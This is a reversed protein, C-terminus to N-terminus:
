RVMEVPGIWIKNPGSAGGAMATIDGISITKIRGAELKSAPDEPSNDDHDFDTLSVNVRFVKRGDPPYFMFNYRPGQGTASGKKEVEISLIFTGEHDAAVDFAIRKAGAISPGNVRRTLIAIKGDAAQISALLAPGGIPNDTSSLVSISIGGLTFWSSFSRDFRDVTMPKPAEAAPTSPIEFDDIYLTHSGTSHTVVMPAEAPVHNFLASLDILGVGEVQDTDLKGDPDVPDTPGDNAAFDALNLDVRQWVDKPAWFIATYNGGPKKESLLVGVATDHDSKVWFRVGRMEAVKRAGVPLIAAGFGEGDLSYTYALAGAGSKIASADHTVKVSATGGMAMWGETETDFTQKILTQGQIFASLSLLLLTSRM